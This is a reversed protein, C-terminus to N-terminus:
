TFNEFRSWVAWKYKEDSELLMNEKQLCLVGLPSWHVMCYFAISFKAPLQVQFYDSHACKLPRTLWISWLWHNAMTLVLHCPLCCSGEWGGEEEAKGWFFSFLFCFFFPFFHKVFALPPPPTTPTPLSLTRIPRKSEAMFADSGPNWIELPKPVPVTGNGTNRLLWLSATDIHTHTQSNACLFLRICYESGVSVLYYLFSDLKFNGMSQDCLKRGSVFKPWFALPEPVLYPISNM